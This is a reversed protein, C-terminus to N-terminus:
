DLMGGCESKEGVGTVLVVVVLFSKIEGEGVLSHVTELFAALSVSLRAAGARVGKLEGDGGSRLGSVASRGGSSRSVM